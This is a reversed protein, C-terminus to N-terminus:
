ADAQRAERLHAPMSKLDWVLGLAAMARLLYWSLDVEWWRV